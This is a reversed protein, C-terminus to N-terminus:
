SWQNGISYLGSAIASGLKLGSSSTSNNEGL